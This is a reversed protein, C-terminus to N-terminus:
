KLRAQIKEAGIRACKEDQNSSAGSAAIAGLLSDGAMLPVAGAFVVMNPKFQARLSPDVAMKDRVASTPLKFTVATVDKRVATYVRGHAAGNAALGVRIQGTEDTVAVGVRYGDALCANIAANAAEMALDLTLKSSATVTRSQPAKGTPPRLPVSLQVDVSPLPVDGPLAEPASPANEPPMGAPTQANLAVPATLIFSFCLTALANRKTLIM